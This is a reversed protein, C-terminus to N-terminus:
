SSAADLAAQLPDKKPESAPRSKQLGNFLLRYQSLAAASFLKDLEEAAVQLGVVAPLDEDTLWDAAEIFKDVADTFKTSKSMSVM